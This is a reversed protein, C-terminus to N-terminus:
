QRRKGHRRLRWYLYLASVALASAALPALVLLLCLGRMMAEFLAWREEPPLSKFSRLAISVDAPPSLVLCVCAVILAFLFTLLFVSPLFPTIDRVRYFGEGM